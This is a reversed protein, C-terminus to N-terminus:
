FVLFFGHTEAEVGHVAEAVLCASVAYEHGRLKELFEIGGTASRGSRSRGDVECAILFLLLM